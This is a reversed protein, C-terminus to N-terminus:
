YYTVMTKVEAHEGGSVLVWSITKTESRIVDDGDAAYEYREIVVPDSYTTEFTAPDQTAEAYYTVTKPKDAFVPDLEDVSRYLSTALGNVYDLEIPAELSNYASTLSYRLLKVDIAGPVHEDIVASADDFQQQSLQEDDDFIVEIVNHGLADDIGNMLRTYGDVSRLEIDLQDLRFDNANRSDIFRAM